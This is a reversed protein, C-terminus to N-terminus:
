TITTNSLDLCLNNQIISLFLIHPFISCYNGNIRKKGKGENETGKVKEM